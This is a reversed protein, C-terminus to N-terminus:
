STKLLLLLYFFVVPTTLLLSDFRDLMGGHGPLIKGSDKIQLTRKMLSEILDGLTGVIATIMAFGLWEVPSLASVFHAFILSIGCTVLLGGIAGEWSKKPSVRELLHHKGFTVGILYAGSDYAWILVFFALLFSRDAFLTNMANLLVFPIVVYAQGIIFLSWSHIPSSKSSFLESSIIAISGLTYLGMSVILWNFSIKLALPAAFMAISVIFAATPTVFNRGGHNAVSYFEWLTLALIILFLSAFFLYGGLISGIIIAVFLVGTITRKILDKM